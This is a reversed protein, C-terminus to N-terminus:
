EEKVGEGAEGEEEERISISVLKECRRMAMTVEGEIWGHM